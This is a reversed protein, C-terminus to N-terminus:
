LTDTVNLNQEPTYVANLVYEEESGGDTFLERKFQYGQHILCLDMFCLFAGIDIQNYFIVRDAPMIGRKGPKRYRYVSLTGENKVFWPQTNCASPAFRVIDTIGKLVEGEWIEEAPRRKSKFMDKRFKTIDDVKRIAIMIVFELDDMAKEETKGIGFWLTGIDKSVLYLDLQEGLYGINQLWHDKKESYLLICYEEGRRCSTEEAPVIRIATRIQPSLPEFTHWAARIEEKEWESIAAEGINRFLHFSKRKFIMPYLDTNM